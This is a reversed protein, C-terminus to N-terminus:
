EGGKQVYDRVFQEANEELLGDIEDMLADTEAKLREAELNAAAKKEAETLVAERKATSKSKTVRQQSM